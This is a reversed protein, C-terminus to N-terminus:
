VPHEQGRESTRGRGAEYTRADGKDVSPGQGEGNEKGITASFRAKRLRRKVGKEM